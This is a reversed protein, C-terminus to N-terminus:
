ENIGVSVSNLVPANFHLIHLRINVDFGALRRCMAELYNTKHQYGKMRKPNSENLWWVHDIVDGEPM